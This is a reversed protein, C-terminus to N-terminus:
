KQLRIQLAGDVKQQVHHPLQMFLEAEYETHEM